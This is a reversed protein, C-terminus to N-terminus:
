VPPSSSHSLHFVVHSLRCIVSSTQPIFLPAYIESVVCFYRVTLPPPLAPLLFFLFLCFAGVSGIGKVDSSSSATRPPPLTQPLSTTSPPLCAPPPLQTQTRHYDTPTIRFLDFLRPIPVLLPSLYRVPSSRVTHLDNGDMAETLRIKHFSLFKNRVTFLSM